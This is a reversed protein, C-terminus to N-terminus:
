MFSNNPTDRNVIETREPFADFQPVQELGQRILRHRRRDALRSRGRFWARVFWAPL